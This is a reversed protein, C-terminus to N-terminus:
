DALPLGSPVSMPVDARMDVSANDTLTHLFGILLDIQADTMDLYGVEISAAIEAVRIPDNMVVFDKVDLNAASPLRAQSQDYNELSTQPDVYHRVVADLTDFAGAHGYPATLAVNRLTPTRFKFRDNVDGTVRERGFDEHGDTYGASNDGKGPGIQPMGVSHFSQDTQFSGTHCASCGAKGYFLKMGKKENASLADKDGRLFHDFRSNDTRWATAEFAAIANAAKAYTVDAAGTVDNPYAAMFMDVYEPIARLRNALEAWIGTVGSQDAIENEGKQGAMETGSTVPFMAQVALPSDLGLPLADGAPSSFGSPAYPNVAARGDHFMVTFEKAGLNFVFPANRPVREHVADAGTGTDRTVGLGRAGEGIPLALGDGTGAMPHHCTACSINKNGSLIKDFFLAKGLAVKEPSAAPHYDADSVAEPLVAMVPSAALTFLSVILSKRLVAKM